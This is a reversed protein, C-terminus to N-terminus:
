VQLITHLFIYYPNEPLKVLDYFFIVLLYSYPSIPGCDASMLLDVDYWLHFWEQTKSINCIGRASGRSHTCQMTDYPMGIRVQSEGTSVIESHHERSAHSGWWCERLYLLLSQNRDHTPCNTVNQYLILRRTRSNIQQAGRKTKQGIAVM